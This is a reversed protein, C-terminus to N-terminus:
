SKQNQSNGWPSNRFQRDDRDLYHITTGLDDLARFCSLKYKKLLLFYESLLVNHTFNNMKVDTINNELKISTAYTEYAFSHQRLKFTLIRIQLQMLCMAGNSDNCQSHLIIVTFNTTYQM